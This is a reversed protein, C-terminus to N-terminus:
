ALEDVGGYDGARELYLNDFTKDEISNDDNISVLNRLKEPLEDLRNFFKQLLVDDSCRVKCSTSQMVPWPLSFTYKAEDTAANIGIQSYKGSADIRLRIVGSVERSNEELNFPLLIWSGKEGKMHNFLQLLGDNQSARVLQSMLKRKVSEASVERRKRKEGYTNQKKKRNGGNSDLLETIFDVFDTEPAIRKEALSTIVSATTRNKERSKRFIAKAREFLTGDIRLGARKFAELLFGSSDARMIGPSSKHSTETESTSASILHLLIKQGSVEARARLWQGPELRVMSSIAFLKGNHSVQWKGGALSQIVKLVVTDGSRIAAGINTGSQIISFSVSSM